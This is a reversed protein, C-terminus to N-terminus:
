WITQQATTALRWPRMSCLATVMLVQEHLRGTYPFLELLLRQNPM